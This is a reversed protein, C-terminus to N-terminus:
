TTGHTWYKVPHTGADIMKGDFRMYGTYGVQFYDMYKENFVVMQADKAIRVFYKKFDGFLVSKASAGIDAMSPNIVFQHGEITDPQGV